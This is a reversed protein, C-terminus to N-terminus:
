DIDDFEKMRRQILANEERLKEAVLVKVRQKLEAKDTEATVTIDLNYDRKLATFTGIVKIADGNADFNEQLRRIDSCGFDLENMLESFSVRFGSNMRVLCLEFHYEKKENLQSFCVHNLERMMDKMLESIEFDLDAYEKSIKYSDQSLRKDITEYRATQNILYRFDEADVAGSERYKDRIKVLRTSANLGLTRDIDTFVGM